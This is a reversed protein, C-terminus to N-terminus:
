IILYSIYSNYIIFFKKLLINIFFRFLDGNTTYNKSLAPAEAILTILFYTKGPRPGEIKWTVGFATANKVVVKVEYPTNPVIFIHYLTM